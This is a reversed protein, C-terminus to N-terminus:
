ALAQRQAELHDLVDGARWRSCRTGHRVPAPFTGNKIDAYIKTKGLGTLTRVAPLKLRQERHITEPLVDPQSPKM